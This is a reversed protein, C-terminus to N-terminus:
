HEIKQVYSVAGACYPDFNAAVTPWDLRKSDSWSQSLANGVCGSGVNYNALTIRWLSEYDSVLGAPQRTVNQVLQGVQECNAKVVQAFVSVGLQAQKWDVKQECEVCTTDIDQLVAGRLIAQNETSLGAYGKSCAILSITDLCFGWYFEPSWLLLTDAGFWSLQGMGYEGYIGHSASWFQTEQKFLYKMLWAPINTQQASNWIQSDFQNQYKKVLPRAVELGCTNAAGNYLLGNNPCSRANVAGSMILKGALLTLPENTELELASSPTSLWQPVGSVPPFAQWTEACSPLSTGRWQTSLVDVRFPGPTADDNTLEVVRVRASFKQSRQDKSTKAWFSIDVGSPPTVGIEHRCTESDCSFAVNALQGEILSIKQNNTQAEGQFVLVPQSKCKSGGEYAECDELELWVTIREAIHANIDELSAQRVTHLYVGSCNGTSCAPTTMWERALNDGCSQSVEDVTPLGSHSVYFQCAVEKNSWRSLFWLHWLGGENAKSSSSAIAVTNILLLAILALVSPTVIRRYYSM